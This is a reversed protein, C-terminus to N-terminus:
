VSRRTDDFGSHCSRSFIEFSRVHALEVPCWPSSPTDQFFKEDPRHNALDSRVKTKLKSVCSQRSQLLGLDDQQPVSRIAALALRLEDAIDIGAHSNHVGDSSSKSWAAHVLEYVGVPHPGIM